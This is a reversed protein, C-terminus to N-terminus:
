LSGMLSSLAVGLASGPEPDAKPTGRGRPM